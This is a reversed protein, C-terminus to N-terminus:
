RRLTAKLRDPHLLLNLAEMGDRALVDAALMTQVATGEASLVCIGLGADRLMWADNAGQGVSVVREEGLSHIYKLKHEREDGAPIVRLDVGLAEALQTGKGFTDATLLTIILSGKLQEVAPAIGPLIEGDTALTGNVDLVLYELNLTKWGPIELTLM